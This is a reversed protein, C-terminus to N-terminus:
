EFGLYRFGPSDREDKLLRLCDLIDFSVHRDEILPPYVRRTAPVIRKTRFHAARAAKRKVNLCPRCLHPKLGHPCPPKPIVIKPQKPPPCWRCRASPHNGPHVPCANPKSM